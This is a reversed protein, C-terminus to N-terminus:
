PSPSPEEIFSFPNTGADDDEDSNVGNVFTFPNGFHTSDGGDQDFGWHTPVSPGSTEISPPVFGAGIAAQRIAQHLAQSLSIRERMCRDEVKLWGSKAGM